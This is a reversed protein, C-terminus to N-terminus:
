PSPFFLRLSLSASPDGGLFGGMCVCRFSGKKRQSQIKPLSYFVSVEEYTITFRRDLILGQSLSSPVAQSLYYCLAQATEKRPLSMWARLFSSASSLEEISYVSTNDIDQRSSQCM